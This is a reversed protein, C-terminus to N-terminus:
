LFFPPPRSVRRRKQLSDRSTNSTPSHPDHQIKATCQKSFHSLNEMASVMAKLGFHVPSGAIWRWGAMAMQNIVMQLSEMRQFEKDVVRISHIGQHPTTTVRGFIPLDLPQQVDHKEFTLGHVTESDILTIAIVM